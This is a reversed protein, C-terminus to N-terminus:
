RRNFFENDKTTKAPTAETEEIKPEQKPFQVDALRAVGMLGFATALSKVGYNDLRKPCKKSQVLLFAGIGLLGLGNTLRCNLCGFEKRLWSSLQEIM